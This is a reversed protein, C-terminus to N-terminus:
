YQVNNNEHKKDEIIDILAQLSQDIEEDLM